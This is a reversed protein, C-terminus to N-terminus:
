LRGRWVRRKELEEKELGEIGTEEKDSIVARVVLAYLM